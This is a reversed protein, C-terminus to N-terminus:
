TSLMRHAFITFTSAPGYTLTTPGSLVKPTFVSDWYWLQGTAQDALAVAHITQGGAALGFSLSSGGPNITFNYQKNVNDWVMGRATGAITIDPLNGGASAQPRSYGLSTLQDLTSVTNPNVVPSGGTEGFARLVFVRSGGAWWDEGNHMQQIGASMLYSEPTSTLATVGACRNAGTAGWVNTGTDTTAADVNLDDWFLLKRTSDTGGSGVPDWYTVVSKLGQGAALVGFDIQGNFGYIQTYAPFEPTASQYWGWTRSTYPILIDSAGTARVWNGGIVDSMFKWGRDPSIGNTSDKILAAFVNDLNEGWNGGVEDHVMELFSRFVLM